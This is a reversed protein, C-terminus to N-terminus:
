QRARPEALHRTYDLRSVHLNTGPGARLGFLGDMPAADRGLRFVETGNVLFAVSDREAVLRIVNKVVSDGRQVVVAPHKTWPRLQTTIGDIRRIAGASGDRRIVFATFAPAEELSKGGVVLGDAADSPGPFFFFEMELDYRDEAVHAPNYLVAGPGMTVHWGPAMTQFQPASDAPADAAIRWGPPVGAAGQAAVVGPVAISCLAVLLATLGDFIGLAGGLPLEPVPKRM